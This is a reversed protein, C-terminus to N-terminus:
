HTGSQKELILFFTDEEILVLMTLCTINRVSMIFNYLYDIFVNRGVMEFSVKDIESM